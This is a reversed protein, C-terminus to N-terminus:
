GIYLSDSLSVAVGHVHMCAKTTKVCVSNTPLTNLDLVRPSSCVDLLCRSCLDSNSRLTESQAAAQTITVGIIRAGDM